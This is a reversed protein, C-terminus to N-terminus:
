LLELIIDRIKERLKEYSPYDLSSHTFYIGCVEIIKDALKEAKEIHNEFPNM